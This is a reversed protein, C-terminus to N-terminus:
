SSKASLAPPQQWARIIAPWRAIVERGFIVEDLLGEHLMDVIRCLYSRGCEWWTYRGDVILYHLVHRDYERRLRALEHGDLMTEYIGDAVRSGFTTTDYYEKIEWVAAPGIISPYAGDVRRPLTCLLRGGDSVTALGRPDQDFGCSGLTAETLMNVLCTLYAEHRKKGKQKNMPLACTPRLAKRLQRFEAKAESSDMFLPQAYGNLLDARHNLYEVLITSYTANSLERNLHDPSLHLATLAGTVEDPRCGRVRNSGRESYGIAESLARVYAWFDPPLGAFRSAPIM